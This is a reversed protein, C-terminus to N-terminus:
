KCNAAETLCDGREHPLGLRWRDGGQWELANAFFRVSVGAQQLAAAV